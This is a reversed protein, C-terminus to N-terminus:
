STGSRTAPPAAPPAEAELEAQMAALERKRAQITVHRQMELIDAKTGCQACQWGGQAATTGGGPKAKLHMLPVFTNNGCGACPLNEWTSLMGDAMVYEGKSHTIPTEPVCYLAARADRQGSHLLWSIQYGWGRQCALGDM